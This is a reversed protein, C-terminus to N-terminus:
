IIDLNLISPYKKNHMRLMAYAPGSSGLMFTELIYDSTLWLKKETIVTLEKKAEEIRQDLAKIQDTMLVSKYNCLLSNLVDYYGYVGHCLCLNEMEGFSYKLLQNIDQNLEKSIKMYILDNNMHRLNTLIQAKALAIGSIGRCWFFNEEDIYKKEDDLIKEILHLYKGENLNNELFSLALAVGSGGHAIGATGPKYSIVLKNLIKCAKEFISILYENKKKSLIKSLLVIYGSIGHMYDINDLTEIREDIKKLYKKCLTFYKLEGTEMYVNFFIYVASGLGAYVSLSVENNVNNQIQKEEASELLSLCQDVLPNSGLEKAYNYMAWILGGGEYLSLDLGQLSQYEEGVRIMYLDRMGNDPNILINEGIGTFISEAGAMCNEYYMTNKKSVTPKSIINKVLTMYSLNIIHKQLHITEPSLSSIKYKITDRGSQNFFDEQIMQDGSYLAKKEFISYYSPIYGKNLTSVEHEIRKDNANDPNRLKEFLARRNKFDTLYSPYYSTELFKAYAYTNRFLQRQHSYKIDSQIICKILQEKDNYFINMAEEFGQLLKEKWSLIDVQEGNIKPINTQNMTHCIYKRILKMQDTGYDEIHYEKIKQSEIKGGSLGSLDVDLISNKNNLPLFSTSLVNDMPANHIQKVSTINKIKSSTVLTETDIIMPYEGYTIINEYHMDGSNLIFFIALNCGTRYYFRDVEETCKCEKTDIFEQWGYGAECLILNKRLPFKIKESNNLFDIVESLALDNFLDRSKYVIKGFDGTLIAITKGCEHTDGNGIEIDYIKSFERGFTRELDERDNVFSKTISDICKVAHTMKQQFLYELVPYNKMIYQDFEETGVIECFTEYRDEPTDGILVGKERHCHLEFVLVMRSIALLEEYFCGFVSPASVDVKIRQFIELIKSEFQEMYKQYFKDFFDVQKNLKM